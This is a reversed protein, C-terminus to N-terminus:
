RMHGEYDLCFVLCSRNDMSFGKRLREFPYFSSETDGVQLKHSLWSVIKKDNVQTTKFTTRKYRENIM